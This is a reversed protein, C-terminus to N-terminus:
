ASAAKWGVYALLPIGVADAIAIIKLSEPQGYAFYLMLFSLMSFGTLVAALSAVRADVMAWICAIIVCAFLAARHHLLLFAPDKAGVGYLKSIMGPHFFAAAPSLHILALLLWCLKTLM